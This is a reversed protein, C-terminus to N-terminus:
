KSLVTSPLLFGVLYGALFAALAWKILTLWFKKDFQKNEKLLSSM